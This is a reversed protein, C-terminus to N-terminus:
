KYYEIEEPELQTEDKLDELDKLQQLLRDLQQQINKNLQQTELKGSYKSQM